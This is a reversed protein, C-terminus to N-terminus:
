AVAGQTNAQVFDQLDSFKYRISRGLRVFRLNSHRRSSRWVRLTHPRMRLFDAAEEDTLLDNPSFNSFDRRAFIAAPAKKNKKKM